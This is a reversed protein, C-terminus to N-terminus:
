HNSMTKVVRQMAALSPISKRLNVTLFFIFLLWIRKQASALFRVPSQSLKSRIQLRRLSRTSSFSLNFSRPRTRLHTPLQSPFCFFSFRKNTASKIESTRSLATDTCSVHNHSNDTKQILARLYRLSAVDGLLIEEAKCPNPICLKARHFSRPACASSPFEFPSPWSDRKVKQIGPLRPHQRLPQRIAV